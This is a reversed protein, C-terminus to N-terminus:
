VVGAAKVVGGHHSGDKGGDSSGKAPRDVRDGLDAFTARTASTPQVNMTDRVSIVSGRGDLSVRGAARRDIVDQAEIFVEAFRGLGVAELGFEVGCRATHHARATAQRVAAAV